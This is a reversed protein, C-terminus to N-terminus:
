NRENILRNALNIIKIYIKSKDLKEIAFRKSNAKMENLLKRDYYLKELANSLMDDNGNEYYFGINNMEILEQLEGKSSNIIPLGATFYDSTKYSIIIVPNKIANVAVDCKSLYALLKSYEMYGSIFYKINLKECLEKLKAEYTGTGLFVLKINKIGKKNLKNVALVITNLDYNEALSGVYSIWFEDNPKIIENYYKEVCRELFNVDSGLYVMENPIQNNNVKLAKDLYTYNHSIIADAGRYAKNSIYQWPSVLIKTLFKPMSSIGVFAEPWLDVVDVILPIHNNQCFLKCTIAATSFPVSVYVIDPYNQQNLDRLYNKLNKSFSFHSFIRKVSINEKYGLEHILQIHYNFLNVNVNKHFSKTHHDYDSTILTTEFNNDAFTKAVYSLRDFGNSTKIDAWSAVIFIKKM